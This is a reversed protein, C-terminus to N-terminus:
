IVGRPFKSSLDCSSHPFLIIYSYILSHKIYLMIISLVLLFYFGKEVYFLCFYLIVGIFKRLVFM